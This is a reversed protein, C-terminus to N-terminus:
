VPDDLGEYLRSVSRIMRDVSQDVVEMSAQTTEHNMGDESFLVEADAGSTQAILITCLRKAIKRADEDSYNELKAVRYQLQGVVAILLSEAESVKPEGSM